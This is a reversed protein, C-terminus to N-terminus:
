LLVTDRVLLYKQRQLGLHNNRCIQSPDCLRSRSEAQLRLRAQPERQYSKGDMSNIDRGMREAGAAGGGRTMPRQQESGVM